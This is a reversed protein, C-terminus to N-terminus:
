AILLPIPGVSRLLCRVTIEEALRAEDRGLM